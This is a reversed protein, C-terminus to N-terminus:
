RPARLVARRTSTAIWDEVEAPSLGHDDVLVLALRLDSLAAITLAAADVDVGVDLAGLSALRGAIRHSGERHRRGGEDAVRALEPEARAAELSSRVIDGSREVIRRTIRAPLRAIVVPDTENALSAALEGVQAEEDVVDNLRRVLEAKSGVSDYVTQVSVGAAAAIDKVSTGAYGRAAFGARAARLIEARTQEAQVARRGPPPAHSASSAANQKVM